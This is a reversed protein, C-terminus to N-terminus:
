TEANLSDCDFRVCLLIRVLIMCVMSAKPSLGRVVQTLLVQRLAGGYFCNCRSLLAERRGLRVSRSEVKDDNM